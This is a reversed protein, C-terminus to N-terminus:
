DRQEEPGEPQTRGHLWYGLRCMKFMGRVAREHEIANLSEELMLVEQVWGGPQFTEVRCEGPRTVTMLVHNDLDLITLRIRAVRGDPFAPVM